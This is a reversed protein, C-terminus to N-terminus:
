AALLTRTAVRDSFPLLASYLEIRRLDEDRYVRSIDVSDDFLTVRQEPRGAAQLDHVKRFVENAQTHAAAPLRSFLTLVASTTTRGRVLFDVTVPAFQGKLEVGPEYELEADALFDEVDESFPSQLQLRKTFLLDSARVCAQGLLIHEDKLTGQSDAIKKELAGGALTVGYLSIADELQTRRKKSTWPKIDHNLLFATTQGLDSLRTPPLHPEKPDNVLFLDVSSGDPYLFGTELRIHGRPLVDVGRVMCLTKLARVRAAVDHM